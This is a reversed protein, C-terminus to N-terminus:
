LDAFIDAIQKESVQQTSNSDSVTENETETENEPSDPVPDESASFEPESNSLIQTNEEQKVEDTVLEQGLRQNALTLDDIMAQLSEQSSGHIGHEELTALIKKYTLYIVKGAKIMTENQAELELKHEHLMSTYADITLYGFICLIVGIGGLMFYDYPYYNIWYFEFFVSIIFGLFYISIYPFKKKKKQNKKKTM